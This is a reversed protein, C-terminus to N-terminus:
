CGLAHGGLSFHWRRLVRRSSSRHGVVSAVSERRCAQCVRVQLCARRRSAFLDFPRCISSRLDSLWRGLRVLVKAERHRSFLDAFSEHRIGDESRTLLLREGSSSVGIDFELLEDPFMVVDQGDQFVGALAAQACCSKQSM